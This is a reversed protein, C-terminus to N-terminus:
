AAIKIFEKEDKIFKVNEIFKKRLFEKKGELQSQNLTKIREKLKEIPTLFDIGGHPRQQNYLKIWRELAINFRELSQTPARGYFYDADIRHSREVKGNLEKIGPPILQHKINNTKSWEAMPHDESGNLLRYTFETGNDTQITDIPFCFARKMRSLFDVTWHANLEPYGYAFRLRTCEDIAVYIYARKGAIKMPSYKVDIQVREGPIPLEYRRRHKKLKVRKMKKAPRRGCIVHHITSLSLKNEGERLLYQQIIEPGFGKRRYYRIRAELRLAIRKPSHKPRRSKERLAWIMFNTKLLRAWWKYYSSKSFGMRKCALRINNIKLGYLILEVKIRVDKDRCKKMQPMLKERVKLYEKGQTSM